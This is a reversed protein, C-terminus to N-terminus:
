REEGQGAPPAVRALAAAAETQPRKRSLASMSRNFENVSKAVLRDFEREEPTRKDAVLDIGSTGM